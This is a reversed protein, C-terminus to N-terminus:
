TTRSACTGCLVPLLFFRPPLASSSAKRQALPLPQCPPAPNASYSDVSLPPIDAAIPSRSAVRSLNRLLLSRLRFLLPSHLFSPSLSPNPSPPNQNVRWLLSGPLFRSRNPLSRPLCSIAFQPRRSSRPLHLVS